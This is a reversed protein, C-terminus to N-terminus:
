PYLAVLDENLGLEFANASQNNSFALFKNVATVEEPTGLLTGFRAVDDAVSQDTPKNENIGAKTANLAGLPFTAIRHALADVAQRLESTSEYATNVWGIAAATKADVDGNSLLYEAARAPGILKTLYQVGGTGQTLGLAVELAGLNTGPGAFRMDFHILLENGAGLARGSVQGIFIVPLSGLLGVSERYLGLIQAANPNPNVPKILNLDLHGIFWGPNSSDFIVVKPANPATLSKLFSNLDTILKPDALNVPPNNITARVVSGNTVTTITGFGTSADREWLPSASVGLNFIGFLALLSLPNTRFVSLM